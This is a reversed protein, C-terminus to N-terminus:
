FRPEIQQGSPRPRRRSATPDHRRGPRRALNRPQGGVRGPGPAGAATTVAPSATLREIGCCGPGTSCIVILFPRQALKRNTHRMTGRKRVRFASVTIATATIATRAAGVAHAVGTGVSGPDLGRAPEGVCITIDPVPDPCPTVPKMASAPLEKSGTVSPYGAPLGVVPNEGLFSPKAPIMKPLAVSPLLVWSLRYQKSMLVLVEGPM